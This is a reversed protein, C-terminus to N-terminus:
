QRVLIVAERTIQLGVANAFVFRRVGGARDQAAQVAPALTQRSLRDPSVGAGILARRLLEALVLSGLSRAQARTVITGPADGNDQLADDAASQVLAHLDRFHEALAGAKSASDPQMAKLLPLVEHRLMARTRSTDANTLDECYPQDLEGLLGAVADREVGLMPRILEVAAADHHLKIPQHWAIGRLGAVSAGRLMRMVLTELQDDAHHATAIFGAGHERAMDVLAQYRLERANAEVNGPM